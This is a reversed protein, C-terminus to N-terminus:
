IMSKPFEDSVMKSFPSYLSLGNSLLWTAVDSSESHKRELLLARVGFSWWVISAAADRLLTQRAPAFAACQQFADDARLSLFRRSRLVAEGVTTSGGVLPKPSTFRM